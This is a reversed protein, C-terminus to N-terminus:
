LLFFFTPVLLSNNGKLQRRIKDVVTQQNVKLHKDISVHIEFLVGKPMKFALHNISYTGNSFMVNEMINTNNHLVSSAFM